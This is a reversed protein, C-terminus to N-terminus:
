LLERKIKPLIMNTIRTADEEIFLKEWDSYYEYKKRMLAMGEKDQKNTKKEYVRLDNLNFKKSSEEDLGVKAGEFDMCIRKIEVLRGHKDADEECNEDLVSTLANHYIKNDFKEPDFNAEKCDEEYKFSLQAMFRALFLSCSM